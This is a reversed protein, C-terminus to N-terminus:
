CTLLPGPSPQCSGDRMEADGRWVCSLHWESLHTHRHWALVLHILVACGPSPQAPGAWLKHRSGVRGFLWRWTLQRAGEHRCAQANVPCEVLYQLECALVGVCEWAARGVERMYPWTSVVGEPGEVRQGRRGTAAPTVM